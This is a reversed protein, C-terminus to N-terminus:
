SNMQGPLVERGRSLKARCPPPTSTHRDVHEDWAAGRSGGAPTWAFAACRRGSHALLRLEPPRRVRALVENGRRVHSSLCAPTSTHRDGHEDWAAGRGGRASIGALGAPSPRLAQTAADCGLCSSPSVSSTVKDRRGSPTVDLARRASPRDGGSVLWLGTTVVDRPEPTQTTAQAAPARRPTPRCAIARDPRRVRPHRRPAPRSPCPWDCSLGRTGTPLLRARSRGCAALCAARSASELVV